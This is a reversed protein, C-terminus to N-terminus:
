ASSFGVCDYHSYMKIRSCMKGQPCKANMSKSFEWFDYFDEPMEQLFKMKINQRVDEPSDPAEVEEESEINADTEKEKVM